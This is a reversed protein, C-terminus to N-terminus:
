KAQKALFSIRAMLNYWIWLPNGKKRQPRRISTAKLTQEQVFLADCIELSSFSLTYSQKPLSLATKLWGSNLPVFTVELMKFHLESLLGSYIMTLSVSSVDEVLVQWKTRRMM